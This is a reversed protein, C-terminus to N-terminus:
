PDLGAARRAAAQSSYGTAGSILGDRVRIISGWRQDVRIGSYRAEAVARQLTLVRGSGLDVVDELEFLSFTGIDPDNVAHWWRRVGRHGTFPGPAPSEEWNRIEVEPHCLDVGPDGEALQRFWRRVVQVDEESVRDNDAV